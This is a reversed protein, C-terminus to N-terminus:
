IGSISYKRVFAQILWITEENAGDRVGGRELVSMRFVSLGDDCILHAIEIIHM